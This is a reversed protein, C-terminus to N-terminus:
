SNMVLLANYAALRDLPEFIFNNGSFPPDAATNAIIQQREPTMAARVTADQPYVYTLYRLFVGSGCSYDWDEM